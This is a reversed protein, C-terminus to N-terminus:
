RRVFFTLKAALPEESRIFHRAIANSAHAERNRLPVSQRSYDDAGRLYELIYHALGAEPRLNANL